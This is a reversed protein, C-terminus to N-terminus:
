AHAPEKAAAAPTEERDKPPMLVLNGSVPLADLRLTLGDRNKNWWAAGVERWRSKREKGEGFEVPVYALFDPRQGKM